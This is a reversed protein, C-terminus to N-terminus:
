AALIKNWEAVRDANAALVADTDGEITLTNITDGQAVSDVVDLGQTVKGFVTHKGDLWPTATHTIFFQSGNTNPGANAMSLVGREHGVGNNTEDEFRYGPGGRGSGEPCGGQIMFDAIVRHFSLGNYFGRKALNVFNAVTLPAKDPYLEVVIPGRSTDFTAILSM